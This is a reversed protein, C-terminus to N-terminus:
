KKMALKIIAIVLTLLLIITNIAMITVVATEM